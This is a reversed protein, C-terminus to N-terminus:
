HQSEYFKSADLSLFLNLGSLNKRNEPFIIYSLETIRTNVISM